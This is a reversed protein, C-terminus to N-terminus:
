MLYGETMNFVFFVIWALWMFVTITGFLYFLKSKKINSEVEREFFQHSFVESESDIVKLGEEKPISDVQYLIEGLIKADDGGVDEYFVNKALEPNSKWQALFRTITSNIDDFLSQTDRLFNYVNTQAMSSDSTLEVKILSYLTFMEITKKRRKKADIFSIAIRIFSFDLMPETMVLLFGILVVSLLQFELEPVVLPRLVYYGTLLAITIFRISQYKIASMRIGVSKLRQDLSGYSLRKKVQEQRQQYQKKFRTRFLQREENSSLYSYSLYAAYAFIAVYIVKGIISLTLSISM